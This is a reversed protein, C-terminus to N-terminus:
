DVEVSVLPVGLGYLYNLVGYLAAHDPLNGELTTVTQQNEDCTYSYMLQEVDAIRGPVLKGVLRIRCHLPESLPPM